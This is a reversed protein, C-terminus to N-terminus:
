GDMWGDMLSGFLRTWGGSGVLGAEYGDVMWKEVWLLMLGSMWLDIEGDLIDTWKDLWGGMLSPIKIKV